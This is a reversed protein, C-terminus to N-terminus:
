HEPQEAGERSAAGGCQNVARFSSLNLILPSAASFGRQSVTLDSLAACDSGAGGSGFQDNCQSSATATVTEVFMVRGDDEGQKTKIEAQEAHQGIVHGDALLQRSPGRQLFTNKETM